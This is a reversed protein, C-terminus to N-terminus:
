ARAPHTKLPCRRYFQPFGAIGRELCLVTSYLINHYYPLPNRHKKSSYCKFIRKRFHPFKASACITQQISITCLSVRGTTPTGLSHSDLPPPPVGCFKLYKQTHRINRIKKKPPPPASPSLCYISPGLRRIFFFQSYGM